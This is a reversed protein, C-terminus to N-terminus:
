TFMHPKGQPQTRGLAEVICLSGDSKLPMVPFHPYLGSNESGEYFLGYNLAPPPQFFSSPVATTVGGGGGGDGGSTPAASVSPSQTQPQPVEMKMHPSLSFGLWNNTNTNHDDNSIPKM